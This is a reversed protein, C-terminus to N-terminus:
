ARALGLSVKAEGYVRRKIDCCRTRFTFEKIILVMNLKILDRIPFAKSYRFTRIGKGGRTDSVELTPLQLWLRPPGLDRLM